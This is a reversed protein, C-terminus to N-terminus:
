KDHSLELISLWNEENEKLLTINTHPLEKEELLHRYTQIDNNKCFAEKVDYYRITYTM